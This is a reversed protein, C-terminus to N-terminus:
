ISRSSLEVPAEPAVFIDEFSLAYMITLVPFVVISALGLTLVIAIFVILGGLFALLFPGVNVINAKFSATLAKGIPLRFIGILPAAFIAAAGVVFSWVLLAAMNIFLLTLMMDPILYFSKSEILQAVSSLDRMNLGLALNIGVLVIFFVAMSFYFVLKLLLISICLDSDKFPQFIFNFDFSQQKCKRYAQLFGIVMLTQVYDGMLSGLIPMVQALVLPTVILLLTALSWPGPQKKYIQFAERWWDLGRQAPLSKIIM